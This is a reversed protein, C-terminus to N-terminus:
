IFMQKTQFRFSRNSITIPGKKKQKCRLKDQNRKISDENRKESDKNQNRREKNQCIM